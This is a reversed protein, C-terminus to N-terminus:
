SAAVGAGAWRRLSRVDVPYMGAARIGKLGLDTGEYAQCRRPNVGIRRAAELFVDPAPRPRAVEESTVVADFYRGLGLQTLVGHTTRRSGGSAVAMPVRGHHACVVEIVRPVPQAHGILALYEDEKERAVLEADLELAQERKLTEAIRPAPVGGLSYVRHEPFCNGHRRAVRQWARFHLAMTDALTGDCDFILGEIDM